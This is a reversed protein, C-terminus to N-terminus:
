KRLVVFHGIGYGLAAGIFIDSPFHAQDPLRTLSLATAAGYAVWTVWRHERYRGSLVTAVAFASATHGSPFSGGNTFTGKYKFWTDTLNGHPFIDSPMLRGIAHKTVFSVIQTDAVAEAALIGTNQTHTNHKALGAMYFAVPTLTIALTTNRGRLPGTKYASFGPNDHFYPEVHPDLAILAATGLAVGVVPKWHQGQVAKWPFTWVPKQDHLINVILQKTSIPTEPMSAPTIALRDAGPAQPEPTQAAAVAPGLLTLILGAALNNM